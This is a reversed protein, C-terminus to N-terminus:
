VQYLLKIDAVRQIRLRQQGTLAPHHHRGIVGPHPIERVRILFVLPQGLRPPRLHLQARDLFAVAILGDPRPLRAFGLLAGGVPVHIHPRGRHRLDIVHRQIRDARLDDPLHRPPDQGILRSLDRDPGLRHAQGPLPNRRRAVPAGLEVAARHLAPRPGPMGELVNQAALRRQPVQHVAAPGDEARVPPRHPERLRQPVARRVVRQHRRGRGFAVARARRLAHPQQGPRREAPVAPRPQMDGSAAMGPVRILAGRPDASDAGRRLAPGGRGHRERCGIRQDASPEEGPVPGPLDHPLDVIRPGPVRGLDRLQLGGARPQALVALGSQIVRRLVRFPVAGFVAPESFFDRRQLRQGFALRAHAQHGRAAGYGLFPVRGIVRSPPFHECLELDAHYQVGHPVFRAHRNGAHLDARVPQLM